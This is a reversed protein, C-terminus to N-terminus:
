KDGACALLEKIKLQLDIYELLMKDVNEPQASRNQEKISAHLQIANDQADFLQQALELNTM